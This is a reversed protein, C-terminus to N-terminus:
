GPSAAGGGAETGPMASAAPAGVPAVGRTWSRATMCDLFTRYAADYGDEGKRRAANSEGVCARSEGRFDRQNAGTRWWPGPLGERWFTEVAVVPAPSAVDVAGAPERLDGCGSLLTLTVVFGCHLKM